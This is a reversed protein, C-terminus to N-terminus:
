FTYSIGLSIKRNPIFKVKTLEVQDDGIMYEVFHVPSNLLNKIGLKFSLKEGVSKDVTLDLSNRPLEWTNPNIPTGVFAIRKGIKNYNASIMLGTERDNYALGLNVIYPSQGQMLRVSDRAFSKNTNIESEIFSANFVVILNKMFGVVPVGEMFLLQKRIDVEIGKSYAEETNFPRYDFTTGAPIQFMEIPNIFKKYFLALSFMEGSSPYSEYRLDYNYIVASNLDPNGHVIANLDFDEYYSGTVERFEPRNITKGFSFRLNNKDNIKFNLNISPFFSLSDKVIDLSDNLINGSIDKDAKYFGSITRHFDEMRVGGYVDVFSGLPIKLGIYGAYLKEFATYTNIIDTGDAYAFGTINPTTPDYYFNSADMVEEISGSLGTVVARDTGRPAVVGVKHTSFERNKTDVFFGTKVQIPDESLAYFVDQVLDFKYNLDHEKLNQTLRGGYYVSAKSDFQFEYPVNDPSNIPRTYIYRRNDPDNNSTFSYGALWNFRTLNNNIQHQGELQGSYILRQVFRLNTSIQDESNYVDFGKRQVTKNEGMNNLLNRFGIKQNDGYILLWNHILGLNANQVYTADNYDYAYNIIKNTEDYDFYELRDINDFNNTFKYSLASTNGLSAKGIVFRKQLSASFSQDPMPKITHTSWNNKFARSITQLSDMREYYAPLNPWVYLENMRDTSPLETPFKRTGDDFGLFDYKGGDYKQFDDIFTTNRVMGMGYSIKFENKDATEKTVINISAGAFDAPLEPAPSKYIMINDIMGAPIADFSFSRKNAEFSPANAGNILVSNYRESLGRVVIFRGDTITIGPVRRIVEAADSDQSKSIQDATIGNAILDLSKVNVIMSVETNSRKRATITVEDVTLSAAGLQFDLTSINDSLVETQKIEKNYSIYSVVINYPGPVLNKIEYDGDFNTITGTYTGQIVINAGVLSEGTVADTVKGKISGNQTFVSIPLISIIIIFLIRKTM